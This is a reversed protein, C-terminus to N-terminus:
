VAPHRTEPNLFVVWLCFINSPIKQFNKKIKLSQKQILKPESKIKLLINFTLFKQHTHTSNKVKLIKNCALATAFTNILKQVSIINFFQILLFYNITHTQITVPYRFVPKLLIMLTIPIDFPIKLIEIQNKTKPKFLSRNNIIVGNLFLNSSNHSMM